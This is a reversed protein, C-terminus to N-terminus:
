VAFALRVGIEALDVLPPLSDKPWWECRDTSGSVEHRLEGGIVRARYIIRVHHTTREPTPRVFSDVHAVDIPEVALGTEENVERIMGALPTEGFDIGGGPLTWQGALDPLQASIRCLLIRESDAIVAYAAVRTRLTTM